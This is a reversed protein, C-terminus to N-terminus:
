QESRRPIIVQAAKAELEVLLANAVEEAAGARELWEGRKYQKAYDTTGTIGAAMAYADIKNQVKQSLEKKLTQGNEEVIFSQPIEKWYIIRYKAM